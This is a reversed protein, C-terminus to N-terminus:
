LNCIKKVLDNNIQDPKFASIHKPIDAQTYELQVYEYSQPEVVEELLYSQKSKKSFLVSYNKLETHTLQNAKYVNFFENNSAVFSNLTSSWDAYWQSEELPVNGIIVVAQDNNYDDCLQKELSTQEAIVVGTSGMIYFALCGLLIKKM